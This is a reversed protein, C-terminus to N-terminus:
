SKSVHDDDERLYGSPEDRADLHAIEAVLWPEIPYDLLSAMVLPWILLDDTIPVDSEPPLHWKKM